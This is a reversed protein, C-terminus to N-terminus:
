GHSSDNMKINLIMGDSADLDVSWLLSADDHEGQYYHVSWIEAGMPDYQKSLNYQVVVHYASLANLDGFFCCDALAQDAIQLATEESVANEMPLAAAHWMERPEFLMHFLYRTELSWFNKPSSLAEECRQQMAWTTNSFVDINSCQENMVVCAAMQPIKEPFFSIFWIERYGDQLLAAQWTLRAQDVELAPFDYLGEIASPRICEPHSLAAELAASLVEEKPQVDFVLQELSANADMALSCFLPNPDFLQSDAYARGCLLCFVLWLALGTRQVFVMKM